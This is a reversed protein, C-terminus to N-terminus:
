DLLMRSRRMKSQRTVTPLRTLAAEAATRLPAAVLRVVTGGRRRVLRDHHDPQRRDENRDAARAADREGPHVAPVRRVLPDRGATLEGPRVRQRPVAPPHPVDALQQRINRMRRGNRPLPNTGTLESGAPIRQNASYWGNVGTFSVSRPSSVPVLIPPLRIM